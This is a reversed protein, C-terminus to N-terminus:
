AAPALSSSIQNYKQVRGQVGKSPRLRRRGVIKIAEGTQPNRELAGQPASESRPRPGSVFQARLARPKKVRAQFSKLSNLATKKSTALKEAIHSVPRPRSM